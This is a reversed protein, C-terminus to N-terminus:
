HAGPSHHVRDLTDRLDDPLPDAATITHTGAQIEITRYRGATRFFKRHVLRHHRRGLAQDRPRRVRHDPTGRDLRTPPRFITGSTWARGALGVRDLQAQAACAMAIKQRWADKAFVRLRRTLTRYIPPDIGVEELVRLSDPKGTPEIIRAL